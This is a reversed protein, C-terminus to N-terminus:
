VIGRVANLQDMTAGQLMLEIEEIPTPESLLDLNFKKQPEGTEPDILADPELEKPDQPIATIRRDRGEGQTTFTIDYETIDKGLDAKQMEAIANLSENFLRPGQELIKVRNLPKFDHGKLDAGCSVCTKQSPSATNVVPPTVTQCSKCVTHPTRDLVNVVFRRRANNEKRKEDDKPLDAYLKDIPCVKLQPDVNPCVAGMGRGGNAQPIWHKWVTKARDDLMRLVTRHRPTFKVYEASTRKRTETYSRAEESFSM